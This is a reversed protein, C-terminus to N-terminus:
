MTYVLEGLPFVLPLKPTAFVVLTLTLTAPVCNVQAGSNKM